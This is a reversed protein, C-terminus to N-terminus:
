RLSRRASHSTHVRTQGDGELRGRGPKEEVPFQERPQPLVPDSEGRQSEGGSEGGGAVGREVASQRQILRVADRLGRHLHDFPGGGLATADDSEAGGHSAGHLVRRRSAFKLGAGANSRLADSGRGLQAHDVDDDAADVFLALAM